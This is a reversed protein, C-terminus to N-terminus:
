CVRKTKMVSYCVTKSQKYTASGAVERAEFLTRSVKNEESFLKNIRRHFFYM